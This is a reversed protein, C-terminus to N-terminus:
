GAAPPDQPGAPSVPQEGDAGDAPEFDGDDPGEPQEPEDSGAEAYALEGDSRPKATLVNFCVLSVGIWFLGGLAIWSWLQRPSINKESVGILVYITGATVALWIVATLVKVIAAIIKKGM